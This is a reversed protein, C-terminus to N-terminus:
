RMQAKLRGWSADEVATNAAVQRLFNRIEFDTPFTLAQSTSSLGLFVSTTLLMQDRAPSLVFRRFVPLSAGRLGVYSDTDPNYTALLYPQLRIVAYSGKAPEPDVYSGSTWTSFLRALAPIDSLNPDAGFYDEITEGDARIEIRTWVRLGAYQGHTQVADHLWLGIISKNAVPENCLTFGPTEQSSVLGPLLAILATLILPM